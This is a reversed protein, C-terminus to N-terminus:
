HGSPVLFPHCPYTYVPQQLCPLPKPKKGGVAIVVLAVSVSDSPAIELRAQSSMCTRLSATVHGYPCTDAHVGRSETCGSGQWMFATAHETRSMLLVLQVACCMLKVSDPVDTLAIVIYQASACLRQMITPLCWPPEDASAPVAVIACMSAGAPMVCSVASINSVHMCRKRISFYTVGIGVQLLPEEVCVHCMSM